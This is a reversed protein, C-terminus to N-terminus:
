PARKLGEMPQTIHTPAGVVATLRDLARSIALGAKAVENLGDRVAIAHATVSSALTEALTEAPTTM